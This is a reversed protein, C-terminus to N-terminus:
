GPSAATREARRSRILPSIVCRWADSLTRRVGPFYLRQCAHSIKAAVSLTCVALYALRVFSIPDLLLVAPFAAIVVGVLLRLPKLFWKPLPRGYANNLVATWVYAHGIWEALFGFWWPLEDGM